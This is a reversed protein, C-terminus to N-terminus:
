EEAAQVTSSNFSQNYRSSVSSRSYSSSHELESFQEEEEVEANMMSEDEIGSEDLIAEDEAASELGESEEQRPVKTTSKRRHKERLKALTATEDAKVKAKEKSAAIRAESAATGKVLHDSIKPKATDKAFKVSKGSKASVARGSRFEDKHESDSIVEGDTNATYREALQHSIHIQLRRMQLIEEALKDREKIVKELQALTRNHDLAEKTKEADLDKIKNRLVNVEQIHQTQEDISQAKKFKVIKILLLTKCAKMELVRMQGALKQNEKELKVYQEREMDLAKQYQYRLNM